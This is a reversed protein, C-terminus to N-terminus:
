IVRGDGYSFNKIQYIFLETEENDLYYPYLWRYNEDFSLISNHANKIKNNGSEAQSFSSTISTKTASLFDLLNEEFPVGQKLILSLLSFHYNMSVLNGFLLLETDQLYAAYDHTFYSIFQNLKQLVTFEIMARRKHLINNLIKLNKINWQELCASGNSIFTEKLGTFTDIFSLFLYGESHRAEQLILTRQERLTLDNIEIKSYNNSLGSLLILDGNQELFNRSYSNIDQSLFGEFTEIFDLYPLSLFAKISKVDKAEIPEDVRFMSDNKGKGQYQIQSNTVKGLEFLTKLSFSFIELFCKAWQSYSLDLVSEDILYIPWHTFMNEKKSNSFYSKNIVQESIFIDYDSIDILRLLNINKAKERTFSSYANVYSIEVLSKSYDKISKYTKANESFSSQVLIIESTKIKKNAKQKIAQVSDFKVDLFSLIINNKQFGKLEALDIYSYKKNQIVFYKQMEQSKNVVFFDGLKTALNYSMEIKETPSIQMLTKNFHLINQQSQVLIRKNLIFPAEVIEKILSTGCYTESWQVRFPFHFKSLIWSDPSIIQSPRFYTPVSLTTKISDYSFIQGVSSAYGIVNQLLDLSGVGKTNAGFSAYGTINKIFNVTEEGISSGSNSARLSDRLIKQIGSWPSEVKKGQSACLPHFGLLDIPISQKEAINWTDSNYLNVFPLTFLEIEECSYFTFDVLHWIMVGNKYARIVDEGKYHIGGIRM